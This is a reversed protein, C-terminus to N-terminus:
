TTSQSRRFRTLLRTGGHDTAEPVLRVADGNEVPKDALRAHCVSDARGLYPMAELLAALLKREERDARHTFEVFLERDPSVSLFPDFAMSRKKATPMYHRTHAKGFPPLQYSPPEEVLRNFLQTVQEEPLHSLRTKFTSVLARLIRWPSPPWEVRGENVSADWPTAHYRGLPFKVAVVTTVKQGEPM